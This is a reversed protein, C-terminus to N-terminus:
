ANAVKNTGLVVGVTDSKLVEDIKALRINEDKINFMRDIATRYNMNMSTEVKKFIFNMYSLKVNMGLLLQLIEEAVVNAVKNRVESDDSIEETKCASFEWAGLVEAEGNEYHVEMSLVDQNNEGGM